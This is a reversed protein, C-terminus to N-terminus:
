KTNKKCCYHNKRNNCAISGTAVGINSAGGTNIVFDSITTDCVAATCIIIFIFCFILFTATFIIRILRCRGGINICSRIGYGYIKEIHCTPFLNSNVIPASISLYLTSPWSIFNDATFVTKVSSCEAGFIITEDKVVIIVACLCAIKRNRGTVSDYIVVNGVAPNCIGLCDLKYPVHIVSGIYAAILSGFMLMAKNLTLALATLGIRVVNGLCGLMLVVKNITLALATLGIRVVNGLCGLM